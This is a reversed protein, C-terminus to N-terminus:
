EASTVSRSWVIRASFPRLVASCRQQLWAHKEARVMEAALTSAWEDSESTNAQKIEHVLYTQFQDCVTEFIKRDLDARGAPIDFCESESCSVDMIDDGSLATSDGGDPLCAVQPEQVLEATYDADGVESVRVSAGHPEFALDYLGDDAAKYYYRMPDSASRNSDCSCSGTFVCQWRVVHSRWPSRGGPQHSDGMSALRVAMSAWQQLDAASPVLIHGDGGPM